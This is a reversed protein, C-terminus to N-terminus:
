QAGIHNAGATSLTQQKSARQRATLFRRLEYRDILTSPDITKQRGNESLFSVYFEIKM